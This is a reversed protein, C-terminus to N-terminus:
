HLREVLTRALESGLQDAVAAAANQRAVSQLGSVGRARSALSSLARGDADKITLRTNLFVYWSQQQQKSESDVSLEFVLDAQGRDQVRLGQSTLAEIIEGEMQQAQSNQPLLQVRVAGILQNIQVRLDRLADPLAPATRQLSVLALKDALVDRRGFLPLAPLLERLAQLPQGSSTLAAAKDAYGQLGTEIDDIQNGLRAAAQSRNLEALAYATGKVVDSDAIQVEDLEVPQVQSRVLNRVTQQIRTEQGTSRYETTNSSFDGSVTVRLQSLLDLRALEGARRVAAAPDGAVEISGVGYAMGAAHPPTIAWVPLDNNAAPQQAAALSQPSVSNSACGSVVALTLALPLLARKYSM